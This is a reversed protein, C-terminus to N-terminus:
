KLLRVAIVILIALSASLYIWRIYMRRNELKSDLLKTTSFLIVGDMFLFPLVDVWEMWGLIFPLISIVIVLFFLTASIRIANERGMLV